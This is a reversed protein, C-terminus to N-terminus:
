FEPYPDLDTHEIWGTVIYKYQDGGPPNGRHLHTWFAPALLLDGTGPQVKQGSYKFETAGGNVDNLYFIFFLQRKASDGGENEFHWAYYGEDGIYRQAQISPFGGGTVSLMQHAHRVLINRQPVMGQNFIFPYDELYDVVRHLLIETLYDYIKRWEPDNLHHNIMLDTSAKSEKNVGGSTIGEFKNSSMEFLDIIRKCIGSPLEAPFIKTLYTEEEM